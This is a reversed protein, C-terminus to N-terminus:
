FKVFIVLEKKLKKICDIQKAEDWVMIYNNPMNLSFVSNLNM